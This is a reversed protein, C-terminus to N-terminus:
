FRSALWPLGAALTSRDSIQKTQIRAYVTARSRRYQEIDPRISFDGNYEHHPYMYRDHIIVVFFKFEFRLEHDIAIDHHLCHM